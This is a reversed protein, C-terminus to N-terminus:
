GSTVQASGEEEIAQRRTDESVSHKWNHFSTIPRNVLGRVFLELGVVAFALLLFSKLIWKVTATRVPVGRSCAGIPWLGYFLFHRRYYRSKHPYDAMFIIHSFLASRLRGLTARATRRGVTSSCVAGHAERVSQMPDDADPALLEFFIFGDENSYREPIGNEKLVSMDVVMCWGYPYAKQPQLHAALSALWRASWHDAPYPVRAAGVAGRGRAEQFASVLNALCGPKMEVDDDVLVLGCADIARALRVAANVSPVKRRGSILVGAFRWPGHLPSMQLARQLRAKAAAQQGPSWAIAVTLLLPLNPQQRHVVVMQDILRGVISVFEKDSCRSVYTTCLVAIGGTMGSGLLKAAQEFSQTVGSALVYRIEGPMSLRPQYGRAVMKAIFGM